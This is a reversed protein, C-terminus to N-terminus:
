NHKTNLHIMKTKNTKKKNNDNEDDSIDGMEVIEPESNKPSVNANQNNGNENIVSSLSPIQIFEDNKKENENQIIIINNNNNNNNSNNDSKQNESENKQVNKDSQVSVLSPMVIDVCNSCMDYGDNHIQNKKEPCHYIIENSECQRGCVNCFVRNGNYAQHSFMGILLKGCECIAHKEFEQKLESSEVNEQVANL